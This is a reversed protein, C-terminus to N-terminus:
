RSPGPAPIANERKMKKLWVTNGYMYTVLLCLFMSFFRIGASLSMSTCSFEPIGNNLIITLM